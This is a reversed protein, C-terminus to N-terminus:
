MITALQLLLTHVNTFLRDHVTCSMLLRTCSLYQSLVELSALIRLTLEYNIHFGFCCLFDDVVSQVLQVGLM